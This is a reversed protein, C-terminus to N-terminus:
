QLASATYAVLRRITRKELVRTKEAAIAQKANHLTQRSVGFKRVDKPEAMLITEKHALLQDVSSGYVVYDDNHVGLVEAQELNNSEKGIHVVSGVIVHKRALVGVDGDFKAELHNFYDWFVNVFPKWYQLGKLEKGSEYDIFSGYPCQQANKRYPALPRIPKGTNGDKDNGIGIICFNFPKIQRDYPKGKNLREFRKMIQPTSIALKALAYSSDYKENLSDAAVLGYHLKLIDLWVDKHWDRNDDNDKRRFPSLLHGLGHSSAKLIEIKGTAEDRNYLVYRKASIGYFWANELPYKQKYEDEYEEVKFLPADFSYPNLANFFEQIEKKNQPPVAMSDTDCFAHVAGHRALITEVIGLVLRAGSTILAAVISNAQKGFQEVKSVHCHKTELGYATVDAEKDETNIEMFIGYSTANAITKVAKQKKDLLAKEDQLKCNDRQRQLQKRLEIVAKFFNDCNPDITKGFLVIPQLGQQKGVPVFRIAHVIKPAKGTRLKSNIVDPLGYWLKVGNISTVYCDGINYAQKGDFKSRIPMIDHDPEIQVLVPLRAWAEKRKFDDLKASKVFEAIEKTCEQQEIHDCTIFDWLGMFICMTPYMSTFDLLTIRVPTKRIKVESRGGIYASTAYGIVKNSIHDRNKELFPRVGMKQLYGKGISAPSYLRTISTNEKLGYLAYEDLVKLYLSYTADVDRMNYDIYEATIRGHQEAKGKKIEAGFLNCAFELSHSEGTLAFVATHLDLFNGRFGLNRKDRDIASGFRIFAKTSDIHKIVLRPRKRNDTLTFSFGGKMGNRAYGFSKALRLLDFPLNFGVCLTKLDYVEPLFVKDLFESVTMLRINHSKCYDALAEKEKLDVQTPDYFIGQTKLRKHEYIKFSGFKLNQYQDITTETDFVLVRDFHRQEDPRSFTPSEANNGPSVFARVAIEVPQM